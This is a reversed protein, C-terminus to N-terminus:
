KLKNILKVKYILVINFDFIFIFTTVVLIFDSYICALYNVVSVNKYLKVLQNKINIVINEASM